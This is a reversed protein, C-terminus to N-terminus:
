YKSVLSSFNSVQVLTAAILTGVGGGIVFGNSSSLSVSIGGTRSKPGGEENM